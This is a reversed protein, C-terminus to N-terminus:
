KILSSIVSEEISHCNELVLVRLSGPLEAALPHLRAGRYQCIEHIINSTAPMPKSWCADAGADLFAQSCTDANGSCGIIVTRAMGMDRMRQVVEHGLLEGGASQM